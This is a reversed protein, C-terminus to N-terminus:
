QKVPYNIAELKQVQAQVTEEKFFAATQKLSALLIPGRVGFKSAYLPSDEDATARVILHRPKIGTPHTDSPHGLVIVNGPEAKIDENISSMDGIESVKTALGGPRNFAFNELTGGTLCAIAFAGCDQGLQARKEHSAAFHGIAKIVNSAALRKKEELYINVNSSPYNDRPSFSFIEPAWVSISTRGDPSRLVESVFNM